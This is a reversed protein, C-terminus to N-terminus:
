DAPTGSAQPMEAPELGTEPSPAAASDPNGPQPPTTQEAPTTEEPLANEATPSVNDAQTPAELRQSANAQDPESLDDIVSRLVQDTRSWAEYNQRLTKAESRLSQLVDQWPAFGPQVTEPSRQQASELRQDAEDAQARLQSGINKWESEALALKARALRENAQANHLGPPRNEAPIRLLAASLQRHRRIEDTLDLIRPPMEFRAFPQAPQTALRGAGPGATPVRDPQVGATRRNDAASPLLPRGVVPPAPIGIAGPGTPPMEPPTMQPVFPYPDSYPQGPAMGTPRQTDTPGFHPPPQPSPGRPGPASPQGNTPSPTTVDWALTDPEGILEALRKQVIESKREQRKKDLQRISELQRELRQIESQQQQRRQEFAQGLVDTLEKHLTEKQSEDGSQRLRAALEAARRDAETAPVSFPYGPTFFGSFSTTAVGVAQQHTEPPQM